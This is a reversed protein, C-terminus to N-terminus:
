HWNPEGHVAFGSGPQRRQLGDDAGGALFVPIRKRGNEGLIREESPSPRDGELAARLGGVGPACASVQGIGLIAAGRSM